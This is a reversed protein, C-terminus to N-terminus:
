CVEYPAGLCEMEAVPYTPLPTLVAYAYSIVTAAILTAILAGGIVSHLRHPVLASAIGFIVTLVFVSTLMALMPFWWAESILIALVATM